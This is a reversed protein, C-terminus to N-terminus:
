RPREVRAGAAELMHDLIRGAVAPWNYYQRVLARGKAGSAAARDRNALFMEVAATYGEVDGVACLVGTDRGEVLEIPGGQSSTVIPLGASMAEVLVHPSRDFRHPLFFLRAQRFHEELVKRDAIRGLFTVNPPGDLSLGSSDSGIVVFRAQPRRGRIEEAVRILFDVGKRHFNNSVHLVVEEGRTNWVEEASLDVACPGWGVVHVKGSDIHHAELTQDHAWKSMTFIGASDRYTEAQLAHSRRRGWESTAPEGMVPTRSRSQDIYNFFPSPARSDGAYPHFWSGWMLLGDLPGTGRFGRQLVRRRRRQVLPHMQYNGWWEFRPWKFSLLGAAYKTFPDIDDFNVEAAVQTLKRLEEFLYRSRPENTALGLRFLPARPEEM